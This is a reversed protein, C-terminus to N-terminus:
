KAEYFVCFFLLVRVLAAERTHIRVRVLKISVGMLNFIVFM